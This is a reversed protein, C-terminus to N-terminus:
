ARLKRYLTAIGIGLAQAARQKGQVTDGYLSVAQAIAQAELQALPVIAPRSSLPAQSASPAPAIPSAGSFGSAADRLLSKEPGTEPLPKPHTSAARIKAPLLSVTASGGEPIINVLYEMTNEFERVNGPWSYAALAELLRATPHMRKKSFLRCYKGLFFDALEPIDESRERLPPITLPIVNLRYYLDDRFMRQQILAPLHENTAAIIRVDVDIVRNSGLRMVRRDQLVRLLKVQLYLPMAGIEDLFIVGQHALEFKGIYGSPNAGTFAGSVYGFLESELLADPIAGCNLPIFPKDRRDSAAHIARAFMEKGTGSEGTILVTSSTNAIQVVQQKLARMPQSNGVIDRLGSAEQAHVGQSLLRTYHPLLDFVLAQYFTPDDSDLDSLRGLLISQQGDVHMEFEERDLILTGTRRASINQLDTGASVGLTQRAMDNLYSIVGATNFILIGRNDMDAIQLFMDLLRQTREGRQYEAAVMTVTNAMQEVFDRYVAINALMRNREETTFCIMGIIGIVRGNHLIPTCVSLTEQCQGLNKCRKCLANERPDTMVFTTNGQLVHRYMEGAHEISSGVGEAYSGTGAIRVLQPDAVEVTIGTVTAIVQSYRAVYPAISQLM